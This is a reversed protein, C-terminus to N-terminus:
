MKVLSWKLYDYPRPNVVLGTFKLIEIGLSWSTHYSYIYLNSQVPTKMHIMLSKTQIDCFEPGELGVPGEAEEGLYGTRPRVIRVNLRPRHM